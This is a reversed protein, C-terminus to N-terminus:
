RRTRRLESELIDTRERIWELANKTESLIPQLDEITGEVDWLFQQLKEPSLSKLDDLIGLFPGIAEDFIVSARRAFCGVFDHDHFYEECAVCYVAECDDEVGGCIPCRESERPWYM